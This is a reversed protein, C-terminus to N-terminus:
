HVMLFIVASEYIPHRDLYADFDEESDVLQRGTSATLLLLEYAM